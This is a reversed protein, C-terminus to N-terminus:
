KEMMQAFPKCIGSRNTSSRQMRAANAPAGSAGSSNLVFQYRESSTGRSPTGRAFDHPGQQSLTRMALDERAHQLIADDYTLVQSYTQPSRSRSTAAQCHSNPSLVRTLDFGGGM